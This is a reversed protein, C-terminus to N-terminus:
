FRTPLTSNYRISGSTGTAGGCTEDFDLALRSVKGNADAVFESVVIQGSASPTDSCRWTEPASWVASAPSPYSYSGVGSAGSLFRYFGAGPVTLMVDLVTGSSYTQVTVGTGPVDSSTLLASAVGPRKLSLLLVDTLDPVVRLQLTQHDSEGAANSVEVQVTATGSGAGASSVHVLAATSSDFVLTPGSVQTWRFSAVPAGNAGSASADLALSAGPGALLGPAAVSAVAQVTDAVSLTPQPAEVWQGAENFFSFPSTGVTVDLRYSAGPELPSAPQVSLYAGQLSVQAPITSTDWAQGSGPSLRVFSGSAAGVLPRSYAWTYSPRTSGEGKVVALTQVFAADAVSVTSFGVSQPHPAVWGLGSWLFGSGADSLILSGISSGALRLDTGAVGQPSAVLQVDGSGAMGSVQLAGADPYNGFFASFPTPTSVTLTGQLGESALRFAMQATARATDLRLERVADLGTITETVSQVGNTAQFQLGSGSTTVRVWKSVEGSRYQFSLGGLLRVIIANSDAPTAFDAGPTISGAWRLTADGTAVLDVTVSGSFITDLERVYCQALQATISDGPGPQHNGDRDILTLTASGLACDAQANGGALAVAELWRAAMQGLGLVAIGLSLAEDAADGANSRTLALPQQAQEAPTPAPPPPPPPPSSGGGGGGCAGLSLALVSAMLAAARRRATSPIM